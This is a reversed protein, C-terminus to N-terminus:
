PSTTVSTQASSLIPPEPRPLVPRGDLEWSDEYNVILENTRNDVNYIYLGFDPPSLSLEDLDNVFGRAWSVLLRGDPLVYPSRYRGVNSPSPSSKECRRWSVM